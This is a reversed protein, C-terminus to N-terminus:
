RWYSRLTDGMVVSRLRECLTVLRGLSRQVDSDASAVGAHRIPQISQELMAADRAAANRIVRLHRAGLGYTAFERAVRAVVLSGNGYRPEPPVLGLSAQVPESPAPGHLASVDPGPGDSVPGHLAPGDSAPGDSAPGNLAPGNLAPGNSAPGTVAPEGNTAAPLDPLPMLLGFAALEAIEAATLGSEASLEAASYSRREEAPRWPPQPTAAAEGPVEESTGRSPQSEAAGATSSLSTLGEVAADDVSSSTGADAPRSGWIDALHEGREIREGIVNLPLYQDRQRTLIWRLVDIDHPGFARYGASTRAPSILKRDELFRIKSDTLNAFEPRLLAVVEGISLRSGSSSPASRRSM